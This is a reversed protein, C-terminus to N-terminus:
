SKKEVHAESIHAVHSSVATVPPGGPNADQGTRLPWAPSIVTHQSHGSGPPPSNGVSAPSAGPKTARRGLSVGEWPWRTTNQSAPVRM